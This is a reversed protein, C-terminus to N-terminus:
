EFFTLKVEDPTAQVSRKSAASQARPPTSAGFRTTDDLGNQKLASAPRQEDADGTLNQDILAPDESLHNNSSSDTNIPASTSIQEDTLHNSSISQRQPHSQIDQIVGNM